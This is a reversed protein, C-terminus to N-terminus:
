IETDKFMVRQNFLQGFWPHVLQLGFEFWRGDRCKGGDTHSVTLTGPELFKPLYLRTGFLTFFYRDHLFLLVGNEVALRLTMGIGCGIYEELGTPGAFRKSSHVIQPFGAHRGYQRTWFQGSGKADETITVIAAQGTNARDIPLPAGVIRLAQALVWGITNMHTHSVYGKYIQSEGHRVRKNFRRQVSQPLENWGRKGLLQRFRIDGLYQGPNTERNAKDAEVKNGTKKVVPFHLTKDTSKFRNM